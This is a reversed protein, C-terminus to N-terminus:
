ILIILTIPIVLAACFPPLLKSAASMLVDESKM